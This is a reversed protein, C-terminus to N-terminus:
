TKRLSARRSVPLFNETSVILPQYSSGSLSHFLYIHDHRAINSCRESIISGGCILVDRKYIAATWPVEGINKAKKGNVVYATAVQTVRGCRPICRLALKDWSGSSQCTLKKSLHSFEKPMDYFSGCEIYAVTGTIHQQNCPINKGNLECITKITRGTIDAGSCIALFTIFIIIFM